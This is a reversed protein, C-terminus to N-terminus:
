LQGFPCGTGISVPDMRVGETQPGSLNGAPAPAIGGWRNGGDTSRGTLGGAKWLTM